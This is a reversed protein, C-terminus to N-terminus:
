KNPSTRYYLWLQTPPMNNGVSQPTPSSTRLNNYLDFTTKHISNNPWLLATYEKQSSVSKMHESCAERGRHGQTEGDGRWEKRPIANLKRKEVNNATLQKWLLSNWRGKYSRWTQSLLQSLNSENFSTHSSNMEHIDTQLSLLWKLFFSFSRWSIVMFNIQFTHTM